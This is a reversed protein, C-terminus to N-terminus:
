HKFVEEEQEGLGVNNQSPEKHRKREFLTFGRFRDYKQKFAYKELLDVCQKLM